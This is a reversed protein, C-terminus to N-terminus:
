FSLRSTKDEKIVIAYRHRTTVLKHRQPVPWIEWPLLAEADTGVYGSTLESHKCSACSPSLLSLLHRLCFHLFCFLVNQQGDFSHQKECLYLSSRRQLDFVPVLFVFYQRPFIMLSHIPEKNRATSLSSESSLSWPTSSLDFSM